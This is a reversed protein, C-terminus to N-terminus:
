FPLDDNDTNDNDNFLNKKNNEKEALTLLDETNRSLPQWGTGENTVVEKCGQFRKEEPFYKLPVRGIQGLTEFRVKEVNIFSLQQKRDREIIFGVDCKNYFDQSGSIDSLTLRQMNGKPDSAPKRPHAVLIFVVQHKHTFQVMAKLVQGIKQSDNAGAIMPLDVTNFPDVVVVKIGETEVLQEAIHLIGEVDTTTDGDIHYIHSSLFTKAKKYILPTMRKKNFKRGMLTTALEAYHRSTPYKEPSFYVAKWGYYAALSLVVFDVFASKGSGPWGTAVYFRGPEFTILHDIGFLHITNGHPMGQEMYGNLQDECEKLTILGSIPRHQRKELCALLADKGRGILMENADKAVFPEPNNDDAPATWEVFSCRTEGLHKMVKERLEIGSKDTDGAFVFHKVGAMLTKVNDFCDMSSGAGNPVSIVNMVGCEMLALADMMGETIFVTENDVLANANWPIKDGQPSFHFHKDISKYQILTMETGLMFTFALEHREKGYGDLHRHEKVGAKRLTEVSLHRKKIYDIIDPSFETTLDDRTPPKYGLRARRETIQREFEDNKERSIFVAGCKFCKGWGTTKNFSACPEGGHTRTDRCVPCTSRINEKDRSGKINLDSWDYVYYGQKTQEIM